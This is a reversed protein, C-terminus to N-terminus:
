IPLREFNRISPRKLDQSCKNTSGRLLIFTPHLYMCSLLRTTSLYPLNRTDSTPECLFIIM